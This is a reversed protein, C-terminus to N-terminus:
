IEDRTIFYYDLISKVNRSKLIKSPINIPNDDLTLKTHRTLQRLSESIIAIKNNHLYLSYLKKLQGISKPIAVIQNNGLYLSELRILQGILDPIVELDLGALDLEEWEEDRARAILDLLERETVIRIGRYCYGITGLDISSNALRSRYEKLRAV